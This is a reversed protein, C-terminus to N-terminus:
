GPTFCCDPTAPASSCRRPWARRGGRDRPREPPADLGPRGLHLRRPARGARPPGPRAGRSPPPRSRRLVAGARPQVRGPQARQPPRHVGRPRVAQEGRGFARRPRARRRARRRVRPASHRGAGEPLARRGRPRPGPGRPRPGAGGAGPSLGARRGAGGRLRARGRRPRRRPLLLDGLQARAWATPEGRQSASSVLAVARQMGAIAGRPDGKLFQLYALRSDAGPPGRTRRDARLGARGGRVRRARHLADGAIAHVTPEAPIWSPRRARARWRRDPVRSPRPAGRGAPGGRRRRAPRAVAADALADGGERGTRLLQPRRTERAKQVYAAALRNHALPDDPDAAVRSQHFRIVQDTSRDQAAAATPSGAFVVVAVALAAATACMTM